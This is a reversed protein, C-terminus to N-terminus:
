YLNECVYSIAEKVSRFNQRDESGVKQIIRQLGLLGASCAEKLRDHAFDQAYFFAEQNSIKKELEYLVHYGYEEKEARSLTIKEYQENLFVIENKQKFIRIELDKQLAILSQKTEKLRSLQSDLDNLSHSNTNKLAEAIMLEKNSTIHEIRDLQQSLEQGKIVETEINELEKIELTKSDLEKKRHWNQQSIKFFAVAKCREEYKGLETNLTDRMYERQNNIREQLKALKFKITKAVTVQHESEKNLTQNTFEAHILKSKLLRSPDVISDRNQKRIDAMHELTENYLSEQIIKQQLTNYQILLSEIKKENESDSKEPLSLDLCKQKLLKIDSKLKHKSHVM